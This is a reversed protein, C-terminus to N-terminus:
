VSAFLKLWWALMEIHDDQMLNPVHGCGEVTITQMDAGKYRTQMDEAIDAPLIESNAGRVLLVPQKIQAWLDWFKLTENNLSMAEGIAADYHMRYTGDPNERINHTILHDWIKDDTIGWAGSRAKIAKIAEDKTDYVSPAKALRAVIDLAAGSIEPGIDVIIMREMKVGEAGHLSMGLMGGLSVGLWDFGAGDPCVHHILALCYPVYAAPNYLAADDFCDSRGRGPLDIAIVRYGQKAFYLALADYDRGNSLLGHVCLLVRGQPSGTETYAISLGNVDLTKEIVSHM